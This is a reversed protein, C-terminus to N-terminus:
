LTDGVRKGSFMALKTVAIAKAARRENRHEENNISASKSDTLYLV